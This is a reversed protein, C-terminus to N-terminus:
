RDTGDIREAELKLPRRIRALVDREVPDTWSTEGGSERHESISSASFHIIVPPRTTSRMPTAVYSWYKM